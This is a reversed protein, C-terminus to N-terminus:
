KLKTNGDRQASLDEVRKLIDREALLITIYLKEPLSTHPNEQGVDHFIFNGETALLAKQVEPNQRIKEKIFMAVLLRHENSNYPIEKGQWYVFAITDDNITATVERGAKLAAKGSMRFVEQQKKQDKFKIGQLASEVSCFVTGGIEFPTEALNSLIKGRPDESDSRINLETEQTRQPKM